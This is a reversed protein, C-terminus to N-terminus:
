PHRQNANLCSSGQLDHPQAVLRNSQRNANLHFDPGFCPASTQAPILSRGSAVRQRSFHRSFWNSPLSSAAERCLTTLLTASM